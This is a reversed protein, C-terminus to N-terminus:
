ACASASACAFRSAARQRSGLALSICLRPSARPWPRPWVCPPRSGSLAPLAPGLAVCLRLRRSAATASALRLASSAFRRASSPSASRLATASASAARNAVSASSFRLVSAFDRRATWAAVSAAASFAAGAAALSGSFFSFEPMAGPLLAAVESRARASDAGSFRGGDRQGLLGRTGRAGVTRLCALRNGFRGDRRRNRGPGRAPFRLERLGIGAALMRAHAAVLWDRVGLMALVAVAV